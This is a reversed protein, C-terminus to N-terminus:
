DQEDIWELAPPQFRADGADLLRGEAFDFSTLNGEFDRYEFRLPLHDRGNLVIEAYDFGAERTPRVRIQVNDSNITKVEADYRRKLDDVEALWLEFPGSDDSELQTRRGSDEGENWTWVTDECLLYSRPDPDLYDWRVCQPLDFAAVGTELDGSSFGAPVYTQEFPISRSAHSIANRMSTLTQWADQSTSDNNQASTASACTLLALAAHVCVPSFISKESSM